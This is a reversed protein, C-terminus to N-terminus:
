PVRRYLMCTIPKSICSLLISSSEVEKGGRMRETEDERRQYRGEGGKEEKGGVRDYSFTPSPLVFPLV